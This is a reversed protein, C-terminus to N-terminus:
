LSAYIWTLPFTVIVPSHSLSAALFASSFFSLTDNLFQAGNVM